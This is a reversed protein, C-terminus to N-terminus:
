RKTKSWDAPNLMRVRMRDQPGNTNVGAGRDILERLEDVNSSRQM